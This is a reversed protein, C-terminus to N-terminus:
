YEEHLKSIFEVIIKLFEEAKEEHPIHGCDSIKILIARPMEMSLREIRDLPILEDETGAIILVPISINRLINVPIEKKPAITFQWLAYDWNKAMLPRKYGEIINPTIKSDNYWAMYIGNILSNHALSRMILPGIRNLQPLAILLNIFWPAGGDIAPNELILASVRDPYKLYTLLAIGGGASHGILVSKKLGLINMLEIALEVSFESTYPNSGNWNDLLPRETFGFAPRDFAIITGHNSLNKIIQNFSFSYAGFGHFLIIAPEGSGYIKCHVKLGKITIFKSDEEALEEPPFTGLLEPVPIFYPLIFSALLILSIIILKSM